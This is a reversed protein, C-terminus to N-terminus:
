NWAQQEDDSFLKRDVEAFGSIIEYPWVRYDANNSNVIIIKGIGASEAAQIGPASDEFVVIEGPDIALKKAALMYIDPSPKGRFSGDNYVVNGYNFWKGLSLHDFYFDINEKGSASAITFPIKEAMLFEFFDIVGTALQLKSKLCLEQYISEKEMTLSVIEAKSLAGNFVTQLIDQNTRGMIKQMKEDVTWDIGYKNLFLDWAQNHLRTDWFVTGNFDFIVGKYTM